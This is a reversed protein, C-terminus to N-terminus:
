LAAPPPPAGPGVATAPPERSLARPGPDRAIPNRVEATQALADEIVQPRKRPSLKAVEAKARERVSTVFKQTKSGKPM